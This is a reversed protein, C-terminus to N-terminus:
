PRKLCTRFSTGEQVCAVPVGEQALQELLPAPEFDSRLLVIAGAPGVALAQKVAALPHGGKTLLSAADLEASVAEPQYWSPWESKQPEAASGKEAPEDEQGTQQRLFAILNPLPVGGMKATHELTALKAVTARLVPNRLKSFAPIYQILPEELGPFADLLAGIRTLANIEM